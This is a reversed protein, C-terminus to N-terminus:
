QKELLDSMKKEANQKNRKRLNEKQECNPLRTLNVYEFYILATFTQLCGCRRLLTM